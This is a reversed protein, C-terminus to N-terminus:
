SALPGPMAVAYGQVYDVGIQELMTLTAADEVREAMTAIGATHGVRNIADVMARAVPDRVINVVLAGDIKLYDVALNRLYSFSSMGAGFDDLAFLCGLAKLETILQRALTLNSIAATETVEFCLTGPPVNHARILETLYNRMGEQALSLGSLNIGIIAESRGRRPRNMVWEIAKHVVWQDVRPMLNYREAAPIFAGPLTLTRDKERLRTLVERYIRRSGNTGGLPMVDQVFLELRDEDLAGNIRSVWTM